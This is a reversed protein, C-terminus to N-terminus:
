KLFQKKKRERITHIPLYKPKKSRGAKMRLQKHSVLLFVVYTDQCSVVLFQVDSHVCHLIMLTDAEEHFGKLARIAFHPHSCKIADEEQFGGGVIVIKDVPSGALLKDSVFRALYAKNEDLAVFNVPQGNRGITEETLM